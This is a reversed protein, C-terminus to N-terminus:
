GNRSLTFSFRWSDTSSTSPFVCVLYIPLVYPGLVPMGYYYCNVGRAFGLPLKGLCTGRRAAGGMGRKVKEKLSKIFLRSLLGYISIKLDCDVSHLDFGDSAGIM